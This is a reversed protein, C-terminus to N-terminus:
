FLKPNKAEDERKERAAQQKKSEGSIQHEMCRGARVDSVAHKTLRGCTKCFKLVSETGRTYHEAMPYQHPSAVRATLDCTM